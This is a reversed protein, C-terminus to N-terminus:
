RQVLDLDLFEALRDLTELGPYREGRLFRGLSGKAISARREIESVGYPSAEIAQRLARSIRGETKVGTGYMKPLDRKLQAQRDPPLQNVLDVLHDLQAQRDPTL